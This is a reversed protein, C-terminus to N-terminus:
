IGAVSYCEELREKLAKYRRYAVVLKVKGDVIIDRNRHLLIVRKLNIVQSRNIQFFDNNLKPMIKILPKTCVFTEEDACYFTTLHDDTSIYVISEFKIPKYDLRNRILIYDIPM